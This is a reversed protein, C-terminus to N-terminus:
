AQHKSLKQRPALAINEAKETVRCMGQQIGTCSISRLKKPRKKVCPYCPVVNRNNIWELSNDSNINKIKNCPIAHQDCFPALDVYDSNEGSEIGTVIGVLDIEQQHIIKVMELTFQVTGIVLVRM